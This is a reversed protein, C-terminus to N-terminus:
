GECGKWGGDGGEAARAWMSPCKDESAGGPLQNQDSGVARVVVGAKGM